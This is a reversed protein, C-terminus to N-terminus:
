RSCRPASPLVKCLLLVLADEKCRHMLYLADTETGAVETGEGVM